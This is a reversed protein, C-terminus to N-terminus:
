SSGLRELAREGTETIYFRPAGGTDESRILEARVLAELHSAIPKWEASPRRSLASMAAGFALPGYLGKFSHVLRLIEIQAATLTERPTM